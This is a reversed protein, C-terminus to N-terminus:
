IDIRITLKKCCSASSMYTYMFDIIEMNLFIMELCRSHADSDIMDYGLTNQIIGKSYSPHRGPERKGLSKKEEKNVDSAICIFQRARGLLHIQLYEIQIVSCKLDALGVSPMGFASALEKLSVDLTLM